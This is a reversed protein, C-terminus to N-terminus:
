DRQDTLSDAFSLCYDTPIIEGNAICEAIFQTETDSDINNKSILEVAIAADTGANIEPEDAKSCYSISLGIALGIFAYKNM